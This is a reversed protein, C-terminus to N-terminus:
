EARLAALPDVGSARRAPVASAVVAVLGLAVSVIVFTSADTPSVNFLVSTLLQSAALAAAVGVALGVVAIGLGQGIIQRIIQSRKAGLAIRVGIERTRLTVLYSLVGYLGVAALLLAVGAFLSVLAASLRPQETAQGVYTEMNRVNYVPIRSDVGAVVRRVDAALADPDGTARAVIAMSPRRPQMWLPLQVFPTYIQVYPPEGVLGYHRVHRVVGVIERWRPKFTAADHGDFEFAIREGVANESGFLKEALTEDVVAVPTSTPLERGDFVRGRLVDIGMARFYDGGTTQFVSMMMPKDPTPPPDGEKM